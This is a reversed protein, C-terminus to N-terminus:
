KAEHNKRILKKNLAEDFRTIDTDRIVLGVTDARGNRLKNNKKSAVGFPIKASRATPMLFKGTVLTMGAPIEQTDLDIDPNRDIIKM